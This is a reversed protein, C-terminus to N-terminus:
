LRRHRHPAPRVSPRRRWRRRHRHPLLRRPRPALQGRRPRAPREPPCCATACPSPRPTPPPPSRSRTAAMPSAFSVPSGPIFRAAAAPQTHDVVPAGTTLSVPLALGAASAQLHALLAGGPPAQTLRLTVAQTLTAGPDLRPQTWTWRAGLDPVAVAGAPVPLTLVLGLAPDPAQNRVTLTLTIADGVAVPDPTTTLDLVLSPLHPNPPPQPTTTPTPSPTLGAAQAVRAPPVLPPLPASPAPVGPAAVPPWLGALFTVLLCLALHRSTRRAM